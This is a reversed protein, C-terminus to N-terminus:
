KTDEDSRMLHKDIKELAGINSTSFKRAFCFHPDEILKEIQEPKILAPSNSKKSWDAYTLSCNVKDSFKSNMVITHFFMEDPVVTNFFAKTYSPNKSLFDLIYSISDNSLTWWQSGGFPQLYNIGKLYNRPILYSILRIVKNLAKLVAFQLLDLVVNNPHFIKEIRFTRLRSLPMNKTPMKLTSIYEYDKQSLIEIITSISKLPYCSGSMLTFYDFDSNLKAHEILKLTALVMNHGGWNVYDRQPVLEVHEMKKLFSYDNLKCKLDLHLFVKANPHNLRTLLRELQKPHQHALILFALKM